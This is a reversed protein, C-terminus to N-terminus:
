PRWRRKMRKALRHLPSTPCRHQPADFWRVQEFRGSLIHYEAASCWVMGAVDTYLTAAHRLVASVHVAHHGSAQPSSWADPHQSLTKCLLLWLTYRRQWLPTDKAADDVTEDLLRILAQCADGHRGEALLYKAFPELATPQIQVYRRYLRVITETPLTLAHQTGNTRRTTIATATEEQMPLLTETFFQWLRPHQTVPLSMLARDFVQRCKQIAGPQKALHGLYDLWLRPM